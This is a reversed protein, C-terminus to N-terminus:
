STVGLMEEGIRKGDKQMNSLEQVAATWTAENQIGAILRSKTLFEENVTGQSDPQKLHFRAEIIQKFAAVDADDFYLRAINYWADSLFVPFMGFFHTPGNQLRMYIAAVLMLPGLIISMVSITGRMMSGTFINQSGLYAAPIGCVISIISVVSAVVIGQKAAEAYDM